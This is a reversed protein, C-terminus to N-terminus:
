RLLGWLALTLLAIGGIWRLRKPSEPTMPNSPHSIVNLYYRNKEVNVQSEQLAMNAQGLLTIDNDRAVLLKEYESSSRAMAPFDRQASSIDSRVSAIADSLTRAQPNNPTARAVADRESKLETAKLSLSNMLALNSSYLEKPDYTGTRDRYGALATLDRRLATEAARKRALAAAVFDREQEANMADMHAVADGLLTHALRVADTPAYADVDLSVIGSKQEIEVDVHNRFYHWLAVDDTRFLGFLGGYRSAPDGRRYASALGLQDDAKKFADWSAFYNKLIYGGQESSDGSAGALLSSLSPGNQRSNVVLLSARSTYVPSAILGFYIISLLNPVLVLAVFLPRRLLDTFRWTRHPEEIEKHTTPAEEVRANPNVTIPTAPLAEPRVREAEFQLQM